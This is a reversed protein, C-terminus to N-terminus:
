ISRYLILSSLAFVVALYLTGKALLLWANGGFLVFFFLFIIGLCQLTMKIKGVTKAPTLKGRYRFYASTVLLLEIGIIIAALEWSLYTVIAIAAVSGVLLKDALPDAIIGWKTIQHTTRALAGDLADSFASLAFLIAGATLFDTILLFVIVPITVFRFVTIANPTVSPPLLPLFFKAVLRDIPTVRSLYAFKAGVLNLKKLRKWQLEAQGTESEM